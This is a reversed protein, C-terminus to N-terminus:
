PADEALARETSAGNASDACHRKLSDVVDDNQMSLRSASCVASRSALQLQRWHREYVDSTEKALPAWCFPRSREKAWLRARKLESEDRLLAVVRQSLGNWDGSPVLYEPPLMMTPGPSHYAFVPISAALMELVGLGFGEIYSPFVGVSCSRLLSSLESHEYRPVVEIAGRVRRPFSGLVKREDWGTGLLRFTTGPVMACVTDVIRPFEVCGKRNDFTGVFAVRPSSPPESSVSELRERNARSIGYPIVAIREKPIGFEVLTAEDDFNAVNVLDATAVTQSASREEALRRRSEQKSRLITRLTNKIGNGRPLPIKSFNRWLLVSRAVFLTQHPFDTRPFPLHHHDYDVVDYDGAHQILYRRLHSPYSLRDKLGPAVDNPSMLTCEWGLREMEEALEILVKTGGLERSLTNQGCFLIRM